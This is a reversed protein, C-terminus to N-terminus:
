ALEVGKDKTDVNMSRLKAMHEMALPDMLAFWKKPFLCLNLMYQYGRPMQPAEEFHRLIQYRRLPNAHHDSHRMLNLMQANQLRGSANWSHLPSVREYRGNPLKRRELGYHEIYNVMELSIIAILAQVLFFALGAWSAMLFAAVAYSASLLTWLILENHLSIVKHGRQKLRKAELRFGNYPNMILARPLFRYLSEGLRASSADEPTSVNVHHGRVHEVKFTAYCVFSLMLGGLFNEYKEPRHVLEHATIIAAGGAAGIAITFFLWWYWALGQGILWCIWAIAIGQVYVHAYTLYRYFKQQAVSKEFTEPVNSTDYGGFRTGKLLSNMFFAYIAIPLSYWELYYIILPTMPALLIHAYKFQLPVKTNTMIRKPLGQQSAIQQDM